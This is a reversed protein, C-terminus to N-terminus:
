PSPLVAVRSVRVVSELCQLHRSLIHLLVTLSVADNVMYVVCCCTGCCRLACRLNGSEFPRCCETLVAVDGSGAARCSHM